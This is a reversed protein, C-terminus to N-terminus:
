PKGTLEQFFSKAGGAEMESAFKVTTQVHRAYQVIAGTVTMQILAAEKGDWNEEASKRLFEAGLDKLYQRLKKPETTFLYCIEWQQEETFDWNAKKEASEVAMEGMKLLPSDLAQLCKIHTPVVEYIKAGDVTLTQALMADGAAGPLPKQMAKRICDQRGKYAFFPTHGRDGALNAVMRHAEKPDRKSLEIIDNTDM